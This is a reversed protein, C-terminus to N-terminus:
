AALAPPEALVVQNKGQLKAQNLGQEALRLLDVVSLDQSPLLSAVGLSITVRDRLETKPENPNNCPGPYPLGMQWVAQRIREAVHRAGAAHTNPLLVVFEEGGFRAMFDGGRHVNNNLCQALQQLCRDGQDQGYQKNYAKFDDIDILILSLSRGDRLARRWEENLTEDLRQRNALKTLPDTTILQQLERHNAELSAQEHLHAVLLRLRHRLVPWRIPKTIYDAAGAAFAKDISAQDELGTIILVPFSAADPEALLAECCDFGDMNPMMADVLALVPREQRFLALCEAGDAAVAVRYGDTRLSQELVNRTLADDDAILILEGCPDQSDYQVPTM